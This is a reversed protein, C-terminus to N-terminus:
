ASPTTPLDMKAFLQLDLARDFQEQVERIAPDEGPLRGEAIAKSIKDMLLQALAQEATSEFEKRSM